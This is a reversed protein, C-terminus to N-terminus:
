IRGSSRFQVPSAERGGSLRIPLTPKCFYDRVEDKTKPVVGLTSGECFAFSTRKRKIEEVAELYGAGIDLFPAAAAVDLQIAM